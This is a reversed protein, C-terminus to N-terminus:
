QKFVFSFFISVSCCNKFSTVRVSSSQTELKVSRKANCVDPDRAGLEAQKLPIVTCISLCGVYTVIVCSHIEQWIGSISNFRSNVLSDSSVSSMIQKSVSINRSTIQNCPLVILIKMETLLISRFPGKQNFSSIPYSITANSWRTLARTCYTQETRPNKGKWCRSFTERSVM